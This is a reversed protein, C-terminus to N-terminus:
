RRSRTPSCPIRTRVQTSWAAEIGIDLISVYEAPEQGYGPGHGVVVSGGLLESGGDEEQLWSVWVLMDSSVWSAAMRPGIAMLVATIEEPSRPQSSVMVKQMQRPSRSAVMLVGVPMGTACIKRLAAPFDPPVNMHAKTIRIWNKVPMEAMSAHVRIAYANERSPPKGNESYGLGEGGESPRQSYGASRVEAEPALYIRVRVRRQV